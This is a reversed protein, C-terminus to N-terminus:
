SEAERSRDRLVRLIMPFLTDLEFDEIRDPLALVLERGVDGPPLSRRAENKVSTLDITRGPAPTPARERRTATAAKRGATTARM